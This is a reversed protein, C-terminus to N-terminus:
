ASIARLSIALPLNVNSDVKPWFPWAGSSTTCNGPTITALFVFFAAYLKRNAASRRSKGLGFLQGDCNAGAFSPGGAALNRERCVATKASVAGGAEGGLM